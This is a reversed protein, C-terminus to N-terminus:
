DCLGKFMMEVDETYLMVMVMSSFLTSIGVVISTCRGSRGEQLPYLRVFKEEYVYVYLSFRYSWQRNAGRKGSITARGRERWARSTMARPEVAAATGAALNNERCSLVHAELSRELQGLSRGSLKQQGVPFSHM